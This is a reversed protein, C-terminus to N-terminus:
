VHAGCVPSCIRHFMNSMIKSAHSRTAPVRLLAVSASSVLWQQAATRCLLRLYSARRKLCSQRCLDLATARFSTRLLCQPWLCVGGKRLAVCWSKSETQTRVKKALVCVCVHCLSVFVGRGRCRKSSAIHEKLNPEDDGLVLRLALARVEAVKLEGLFERAEASQMKYIEKIPEM